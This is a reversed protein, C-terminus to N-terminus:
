ADRCMEGSVPHSTLAAWCAAITGELAYSCRMLISLRRSLYVPVANNRLRRCSLSSLM